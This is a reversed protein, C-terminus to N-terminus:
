DEKAVKASVSKKHVTTTVKVGAASAASKLISEALTDSGSAEKAIDVKSKGDSKLEETVRKMTVDLTVGQKTDSAM